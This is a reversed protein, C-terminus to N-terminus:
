DSIMNKLYYLASQLLVQGEELLLVDVALLLTSSPSHPTMGIVHKKPMSFPLYVNDVM